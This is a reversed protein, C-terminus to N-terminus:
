LVEDNGLKEKYFRSEKIHNINDLVYQNAYSYDRMYKIIDTVHEICFCSLECIRDISYSMALCVAMHAQTKVLKQASIFLYNILIYPITESSQSTFDNVIRDITEGVPLKYESMKQNLIAAADNTLAFKITRSFTFDAPTYNNETTDEMSNLQLYELVSDDDFLAFCLTAFIHLIELKEQTSKRETLADFYWITLKAAADPTNESIKLLLRNLVRTLSIGIDAGCNQFFYVTKASLEATIITLNIM